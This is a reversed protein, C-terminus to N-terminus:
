DLAVSLHNTLNTRLPERSTVLALSGSLKQVM